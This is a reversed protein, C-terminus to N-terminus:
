MLGSVPALLVTCIVVCITTSRGMHSANAKALLGQQVCHIAPAAGTCCVQDPGIPELFLDFSGIDEHEKRHIEQPLLIDRPRRFVISFPHGM